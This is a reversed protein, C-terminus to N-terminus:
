LVDISLVVKIPIDLTKINEKISHKLFAILLLFITLDVDVFFIYFKINGLDRHWKQAFNLHLFSKILLHM